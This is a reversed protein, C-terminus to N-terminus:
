VFSPNFIVAGPLTELKISPAGSRGIKVVEICIGSNALISNSTTEDSYMSKFVSLMSGDFPLM